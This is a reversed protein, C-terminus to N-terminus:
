PPPRALLAMVAIIVCYALALAMVASAVTLAVALCGLMATRGTM